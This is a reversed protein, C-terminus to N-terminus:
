AAREQGQGQLGNNRNFSVRETAQDVGRWAPPAPPADVPYIDPRLDHRSVGYLRESLLVYEAPMRGDRQIWRSIRSQSVKLAQAMLVQGRARRVCEFLADLPTMCIHTHAFAHHTLRLRM